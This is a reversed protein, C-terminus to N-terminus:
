MVSWMRAVASVRLRNSAVRRAAQLGPSRVVLLEVLRDVLRREGVCDLASMDSTGAEVHEADFRRRILRQHAQRLHDGCRM